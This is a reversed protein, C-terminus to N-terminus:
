SRDLAFQPVTGVFDFNLQYTQKVSMTHSEKVVKATPIFLIDESTKRDQIRISIYPNAALDQALNLPRMNMAQLGGSLAVRLGTVSGRVTIKTVAIEQAFPSDIGYIPEEGYEVTVSLSKIFPYVKNNVYVKINAGSLTLQAM